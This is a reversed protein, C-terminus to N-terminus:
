RLLCLYTDPFRARMLMIREYAYEPCVDVAGCMVNFYRTVDESEGVNDMYNSRAFEALMRAWFHRYNCYAHSEANLPCDDSNRVRSDASFYRAM